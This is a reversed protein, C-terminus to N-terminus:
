LIPSTRTYRQCTRWAKQCVGTQDYREIDAGRNEYDFDIQDLIAIKLEKPLTIFGSTYEARLQNWIPFNLSPYQGGVLRYNIPLVETNNVNDYLKFTTADIPGYPINFNSAPNNFWIKVTKQVICLGTAKEIAERAETILDTILADDASTTVRCYNKAEALTVPETPTGVNTLTFDFLYNYFSM